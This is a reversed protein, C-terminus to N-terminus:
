ANPEEDEDESDDDEIRLAKLAVNAQQMFSDLQSLVEFLGPEFGEYEFRVCVAFRKM